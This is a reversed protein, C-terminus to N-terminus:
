ARVQRRRFDEPTCGVLRKFFKLFNTSESFGLHIGIQSTSVKSHVLLRKAELAIREDIVQKASRGTALLCARNISSASYGLREGLAHVTPRLRLQSEIQQGFWRALQQARSHGLVQAQSHSHVRTIKLLLCSLLTKALLIDLASQASNSDFRMCEEKLQTMQLRIDKADQPSLLASRPWAHLPDALSPAAASLLTQAPMVVTDVLVMTGQLTDSMHWHQVQGPQLFILRGPELTVNQFDIQHEGEGQDILLLLFFEVREPLLFYSPPVRRRLEKMTMVEVGLDSLRHNDFPTKRIHISDLNKSNV